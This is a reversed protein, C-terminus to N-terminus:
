GPDIMTLFGIKLDTTKCAIAGLLQNCHLTRFLTGPVYLYISLVEFLSKSSSVLDM